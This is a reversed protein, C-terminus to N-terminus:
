FPQQIQTNQHIKGVLNWEWLWCSHLLGFYNNCILHGIGVAHIPISILFQTESIRIIIHCIQSAYPTLINGPPCDHENCNERRISGGTCSQGGNKSKELMIREFYQSGGGCSKTCGGTKSWDSWMCDVQLM